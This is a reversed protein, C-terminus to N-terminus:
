PGQGRWRKAISVSVKLAGIEQMEVCKTGEGDRVTPAIQIVHVPLGCKSCFAGGVSLFNTIQRQIRRLNRNEESRHRMKGVTPRERDPPKAGCRDVPDAAM